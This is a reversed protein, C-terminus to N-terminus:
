EYNDEDQDRREFCRSRLYLSLAAAIRAKEGPEAVLADLYREGALLAQQPRLDPYADVVAFDREAAEVGDEVAFLLPIARSGDSAFDFLVGNPHRM